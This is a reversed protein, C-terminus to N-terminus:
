FAESLRENEEKKFYSYYDNVLKIYSGSKLKVMEFKVLQLSGEMQYKMEIIKGSQSWKGKYVLV